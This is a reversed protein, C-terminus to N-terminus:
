SGPRGTKRKRRARKKVDAPDEHSGIGVKYRTVLGADNEDSKPPLPKQRPKETRKVTMEDLTNKRARTAPLADEEEPALGDLLPSRRVRGRDTGPGMDDLSPKKARTPLNASTGYTREGQYRGAALEIDCGKVEVM